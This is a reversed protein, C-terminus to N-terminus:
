AAPPATSAESAPAVPNRYVWRDRRGDTTGTDPELPISVSIATDAGVPLLSIALVLNEDDGRPEIREGRLTERRVEVQGHGHVILQGAGREITLAVAGPQISMQGFTLPIGGVGLQPGSARYLSMGAATTLEISARHEPFILSGPGQHEIYLTAYVGGQTIRDGYADVDGAVVSREVTASAELVEVVPRQVAPVLVRLLDSRHASRM